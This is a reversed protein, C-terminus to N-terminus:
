LRNIKTQIPNLAMILWLWHKGWIKALLQCSEWKTLPLLGTVECHAKPWSETTWLQGSLPLVSLCRWFLIGRSIKLLPYYFRNGCEEAIQLSTNFTPSSLFYVSRKINCEEAIQLSTKFTLSSLFNFIFPDSLPANHSLKFRQYHFVLILNSQPKRM